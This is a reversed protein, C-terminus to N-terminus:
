SYYTYDNIFNDILLESLAIMRLEIEKNILETNTTVGINGHIRLTRNINGEKSDEGGDTIVEGYRNSISEGHAVTTTADESQEKNITNQERTDYTTTNRENGLDHSTKEDNTFTNPSNFGAKQTISIDDTISHNNTDSGTKIVTDTGGNTITNDYTTTDSGTHSETDTGSHSTTKGYQTTDESTTTETEYRDVNEIPSYDYDFLAQFQKNINHQRNLIYLTFAEHFDEQGEYNNVEKGKLVSYRRTGYKRLIYSLTNNSSSIIHPDGEIDSASISYDYSTINDVTLLDYLEKITITAM